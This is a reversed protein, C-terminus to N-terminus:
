KREAWALASVPRFRRFVARYEPLWGVRSLGIIVLSGLGPSPVNPVVWPHSSRGRLLGVLGVKNRATVPALTGVRKEGVLRPQRREPQESDYSGASDLSEWPRKGSEKGRAGLSPLVGKCCLPPRSGRRSGLTWSGRMRGSKVIEVAMTDTIATLIHRCSPFAKFDRVSLGRPETTGLLGVAM